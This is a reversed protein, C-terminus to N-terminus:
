KSQAVGVDASGNPAGGSGNSSAKWCSRVTCYVELALAKRTDGEEMGDWHKRGFLFFVGGVLSLVAGLVIIALRPPFSRKQPIDPPDLLKVSPTEKAEQVKALEYEKTLVEYLTEEVKTNRYLDAYGVGLLPLKRISPYLEQGGQDPASATEESTGGIKKIQRQLEDVRAQLARVRVNGDSYIQRLGQLSTQAAILQGELAAGAEIMAKAQSQMDITTNRSAYVSFNKEASELDDKVGVLRSELFVRERHASSTNLQVVVQNLENIYEGVMAAARKPDHDSVQVTIIGTKHDAVFDTHADLDDRADEIKRDWYEKKLNFKNILDDQLTRSHLVGVFLDSSNKIGLLDGAVSGLGSGLQSTLNSTGGSMSSAALMALGMGSSGQDPPMLRATSRYRAPIAFAIVASVVLGMLSVRLLFRRSNWILQWQAVSRDRAVREDATYSYSPDHGNGSAQVQIEGTQLIENAM